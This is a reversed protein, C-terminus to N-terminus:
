RPRGCLQTYLRYRRHPASYSDLNRQRERQRLCRNWRASGRYHGRRCAFSQGLRLRPTLPMQKCTCPARCWPTGPPGMLPGALSSRLHNQIVDRVVDTGDYYGARTGIGECEASSSAMWPDHQPKMTTSPHKLLTTTEYIATRCLGM